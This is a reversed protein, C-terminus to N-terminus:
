IEILQCTFSITQNSFEVPKHDDDELYFTLHSLVTKNIKKPLTVGLQNYIHHGPHSGLGCSYFFAERIGSVISGNICDCRLQIKDYATIKFLRDRKYTDLILQLYGDSDGLPRFTISYFRFSHLFIIKWLFNFNSRKKLQMKM